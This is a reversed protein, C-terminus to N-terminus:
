AQQILDIFNKMDPPIPAFLELPTELIPHMLKLTHAHLMQREVGYKKNVSTSGYVPDGLVPCNMDKLHVRIQHTRGTVLTAEVLSLGKRRALVKFRTISEKGDQSVTMQKRHIPHRKIPASYEGERPVGGCIVLYRKDIQRSSFLEILKKHTQLNKAAILVGTTNKDLRHVIGPRLKEFEEPNLSKCHHLLANAFTGTHAGPAPHVVMGAPKNIALLNADEYLIDLDIKEPQLDLQPVLQFTIEIQDGKEIKRQKKVPLGNVHVYDEDILYQFYSRSHEPFHDALFKDLRKGLDDKSVVLTDNM